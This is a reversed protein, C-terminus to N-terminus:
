AGQADLYVWRGEFRVFRSHEHLRTAKGGTKYRAIFEVFGETDHMEGGGTRKIKLGLWRTNDHLHITQPRTDPHWSHRLYNEDCLVFASYRSRMLAEATEPLATQQLYPRCCDSFNRGSGCPCMLTDAPRPKKM